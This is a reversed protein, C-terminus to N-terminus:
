HVIETISNQTKPIAHNKKTSIRIKKFLGRCILYHFHCAFLAAETMNLTSLM